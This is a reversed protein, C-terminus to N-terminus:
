CRLLHFNCSRGPSFVAFASVRCSEIYAVATGISKCLTGAFRKKELASIKRLCVDFCSIPPGSWLVAQVTAGEGLSLPKESNFGSLLSQYPDYQLSHSCTPKGAASAATRLISGDGTVTLHDLDKLIGERISPVIGLGFLLDELFKEFGKIISVM